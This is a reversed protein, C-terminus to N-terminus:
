RLEARCKKLLEEAEKKGFQQVMQDWMPSERITNQYQRTMEELKEPSPEKGPVVAHVGDDDIWSAVVAPAKELRAERRERKLRSKRGM